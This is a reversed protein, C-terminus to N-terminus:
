LEAKFGIFFSRPSGPRYSIDPDGVQNSTYTSYVRDALNDIRGYIEIAQSVPVSGILSFLTHGPYVQTNTEDTFYEGLHNAELEFRAGFLNLPEYGLTVTALTKPARPVDNGGYNIVQPPFGVIATFDDYEQKTVSLALNSYWQASIQKALSLELGAHHTKGANTNKRDLSDQDIYSVIDDRVRMYYATLDYQFNHVWNGRIGIELSDTKVPKLATSNTTSGSRFLEGVGPVRFSHRYNTYLQQQESLSFVAGLKPSLSEYTLSQEDPRFHTFRDPAARQEVVSASLNDRYDVAFNDYRLGATLLVSPKVQWETHIYPSISLQDADYNYNTRGTPNTDTYIGNEIQPILRIERYTSPSYDTDVGLIYEVGADPLKKRYKALLGYSQFQYNRDNPDYTLMWSPMLEMQNDRFFPTLTWRVNDGQDFTFETSIRLADVNRQGVDNHYENAKAQNSYNDFEQSAVGAQDVKTYSIITKQQAQEGYTSDLRLTTSARSYSAEDRYGKNDTLNINFRAGLGPESTSLPGGTSVLVRKWGDSGVEPNVSLEFEEPSPATLTNIIGGISDSGYLASGPGKIIEVREAQPINVEYLGNHNFSGTPRTPLGDELFLYVADTTIPQRIATMHGEGGLNNVHVGATRNLLDAPHSPSIFDIDEQSIVDVNTASQKQPKAEGTGTVTLTYPQNKATPEAKSAAYLPSTTGVVLALLTVKLPKSHMNM